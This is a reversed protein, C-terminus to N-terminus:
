INLRKKLKKIYFRSAEIKTRDPDDLQLSYKGNPISKLSVTRKVNVIHKRQVRIFFEEPLKNQMVKMLKPISYVGNETYVLTKYGFAELFYIKEFPILVIKKGDKCPLGASYVKADELDKFRYYNILIKQIAKKFRTFSYPKVLFDNAGVEFAALAHQKHHTVFIIYPNERKKEERQFKKLIEITSAQPFIIDLFLIDCTKNSIEKLVEEETHIVKKINFQPFESLDELLTKAFEEEDEAIIVDLKEDTM